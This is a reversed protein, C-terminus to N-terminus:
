LYERSNVPRLAKRRKESNYHRSFLDSQPKNVCRLTRLEM